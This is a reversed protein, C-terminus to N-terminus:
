KALIMREMEGLSTDELLVQDAGSTRISEHNRTTMTLVICQIFPFCSKIRRVLALREPLILNSNVIIVDVQNSEIFEFASLAGYAEYVLTQPL